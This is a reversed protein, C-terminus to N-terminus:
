VQLLNELAMRLEAFQFRFGSQILKVPLARTSALLGEDALEGFVLRLAFPPVPLFAPRGLVTALIRTFDRNTVPNPAVINVPGVLRRLSSGEAENLAPPCREAALIHDIASAFDAIHIWDWWQQGSGVRGGLGLRFPLLM